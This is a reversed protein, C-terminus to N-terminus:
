SHTCSSRNDAKMINEQRFHMSNDFPSVQLFNNKYVFYSISDCSSDFKWLHALQVTWSASTYRKLLCRFITMKDTDIGRTTWISPFCVCCIDLCTLSCVRGKMGRICWAARSLPNWVFHRLTLRWIDVTPSLLCMTESTFCTYCGFGCTHM